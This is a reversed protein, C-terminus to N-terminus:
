GEAGGGGFRERALGRLMGMVREERERMAGLREEREARRARLIEERRLERESKKREVREKMRKLDEDGGGSFMEADGLEAVGSDHAADAFTTNVYRAERRKELARDKTGPASRSTLEDLNAARNHREAKRNSKLLSHSAHQATAESSANDKDRLNLDPLSPITPGHHQKHNSPDNETAVTSSSQVRTPLTPGYQDEDDSDNDEISTGEHKSGLRDPEPAFTSQKQAKTLIQPDYWGEAM